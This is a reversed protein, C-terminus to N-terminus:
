CVVQQASTPRIFRVALVGGNRSIKLLRVVAPQRVALSYTTSPQLSRVTVNPQVTYALEDVGSRESRCRVQYLDVTSGEPATWGLSVFDSGFSTVRV